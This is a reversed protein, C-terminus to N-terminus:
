ENVLKLSKGIVFVKSVGSNQALVTTLVKAKITAGYEPMDYNAVGGAITTPVAIQAM